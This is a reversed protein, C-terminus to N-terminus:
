ARVSASEARSARAREVREVLASGIAGLPLVEDALGASAVSGPMGWVVSTAEDQTIVHAGLEKLAVCGDRGDHGMGTLVAAVVNGGYHAAVSSFLVDVSPRCFNVPPSQDVSLSAIGAINRRVVMQYDGPAIYVHGPEIRQGSAGEHVAIACAHDLRDALFRTFVAPMHQVVLVPVPLTAPLDALVDALANPGGTSSGIVIVEVRGTPTGARVPTPLPPFTLRSPPRCLAKLKPVLESRVREMAVGVNGVNAPKTVYDSAGLSLASLTAEAGRATLTSFMVVPLDPHERRLIELTGLGDLEPMEIDLTVIDPRLQRIRQLAIKGNSAVGAVELEPDASIIDSLLKRIVVSDDVILVRTRGSM